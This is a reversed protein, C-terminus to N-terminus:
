GVLNLDPKLDTHGIPWLYWALWATAPWAFLHSYMPIGLIIQIQAISMLALLAVLSRGSYLGHLIAPLLVVQDFFSSYPTAVLSVLMLVPAQKQWDWNARRNRFHWFAWICAVAEPLFQLWLANRDLAFRLYTGFDPRFEDRLGSTRAMEFYQSWVSPDFLLPVACCLGIAVVAGAVIGHGKRAVIWGLLAVLFPLLLHPKLACLSLAMGALFPKSDHYRLFLVLGLLVFVGTQGTAVCFLAPAFVYGLLHLKDPRSGNTKWMIRISAALCGLILLSWVISGIRASMFGLPLVLFLASPPNRMILIMDSTSHPAAGELAAIASARYPNAGHILQQGAAWYSIFDHISAARGTLLVVSIGLVSLVSTFVFICFIVIGAIGHIAPQKSPAEIQPALTTNM